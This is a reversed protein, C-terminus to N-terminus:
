KSKIVSLLLFFLNESINNLSETKPFLPKEVVWSLHYIAARKNRSNMLSAAVVSWLIGGGGWWMVNEAKGQHGAVSYWHGMRSHGVVTGPDHGLSLMTLIYRYKKILDVGVIVM